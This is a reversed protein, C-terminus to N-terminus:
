YERLLDYFIVKMEIGIPAVYKEFGTSISSLAGVVVPVVTVKKMGWMRAIEDKLMKNKEIKRIGRKNVRVDGPITVDVIKVKKKTTDIIVIDPRQAEIKTDCQTTLDQLVQYGESEIFGDPDHKYWQPEREFGHKGCLKWHIYRCVNDHRSKYEKQDLM